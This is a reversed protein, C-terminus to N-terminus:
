RRASALDISDDLDEREGSRERLLSGDHDFRAQYEIGQADVGEIEVRGRRDLEIEEVHTVGRQDVASLATQRRQYEAGADQALATGATLALIPSTAIMLTRAINM